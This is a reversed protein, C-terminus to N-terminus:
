SLFLFIRHGLKKKKKFLFLLFVEVFEMAARIPPPSVNEVSGDQNDFM